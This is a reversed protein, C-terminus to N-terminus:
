QIRLRIPLVETGQRIEANYIDYMHALSMKTYAKPNRTIRAIVNCNVKINNNERIKEKWIIPCYECCDTGPKGKKKQIAYMCYLTHLIETGSFPVFGCYEMWYPWELINVEQYKKKNEIMWKWLAKHTDIPFALGHDVLYRREEKNQQIYLERYNKLYREILYKM